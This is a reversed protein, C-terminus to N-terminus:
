LASLIRGAPTAGMLMWALGALMLLVGLALWGLSRWMKGNTLVDYFATLAHAVDSFPGSWAATGPPRVAIM